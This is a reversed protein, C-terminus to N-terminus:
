QVDIPLLRLQDLRLRILQAHVRDPSIKPYLSKAFEMWVDRLTVFLLSWSVLIVVRIRKTM